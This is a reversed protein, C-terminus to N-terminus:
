CSKIWTKLQEPRKGNQLVNHRIQRAVIAIVGKKWNYGKGGERFEPHMFDVWCKFNFNCVVGRLLRHHRNHKDTTVSSTRYVSHSIDSETENIQFIKREKYVTIQSASMPFLVRVSVVCAASNQITDSLVDTFSQSFISFEVPM